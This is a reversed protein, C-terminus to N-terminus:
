VTGEFRTVQIAFGIEVPEGALGRVRIALAHPDQQFVEEITHAAGEIPTLVSGSVVFFSNAGAMVLEPFDLDFVTADRPTM